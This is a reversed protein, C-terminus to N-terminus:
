WEHIWRRCTQMHTSLYVHMCIYTCWNRNSLKDRIYKDQIIDEASLCVHMCIYTCLYGTSIKDHMYKDEAPKCIHLSVHMCLYMHIDTNVLSDHIFKHTHVNIYWHICTHRYGKLSSFLRVVRTIRMLRLLKGNPLSTGMTQRTSTHTHTHTRAHTRAHTHTYVRGIRM